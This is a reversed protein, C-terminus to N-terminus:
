GSLLLVLSRRQRLQKGCAQGDLPLVSVRRPSGCHGLRQLLLWAKHLLGAVPLSPQSPVPLLSSLPPLLQRLRRSVRDLGVLSWQAQRCPSSGKM